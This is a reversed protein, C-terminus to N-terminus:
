SEGGRAQKRGGETGEEQAAEVSELCGPGWCLGTALGPWAEERLPHAMRPFPGLPQRPARAEQLPSAGGPPWLWHLRERGGWEM